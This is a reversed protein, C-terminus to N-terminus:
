REREHLIEKLIQKAELYPNNLPGQPMAKNVRNWTISLAWLMCELHKHTERNKELAGSIKLHQHHKEIAELLEEAGTGNQATALLIPPKWASSHPRDQLERQLASELNKIGPRDAKNIVFIDAWEVLGRKMMQIEDGCEPTLVLVTTDALREMDWESQGAGPTEIMVCGFGFAGLARAMMKATLFGAFPTGLPAFSRYFIRPHNVKDSLRIRDGLFSGGTRESRPDMAIIGLYHGQALPHALHSILSSKGAGGPGTIAITYISPDLQYIKQILDSPDRGREIWTLIRSISLKQGLVANQFVTQWDKM